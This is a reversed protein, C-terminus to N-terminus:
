AADLTLTSRVAQESTEPNLNVEIMFVREQPIQGQQILQDRIAKAREQALRRLESDEVQITEVLKEKMTEFTVIPKGTNESGPLQEAGQARGDEQQTKQSASSKAEEGLNPSASKPFHLEYLIKVLRITDDKTVVVQELNTSEQPASAQLERFKSERIQKKLRENALALRDLQPDAAGTIELRLGPREKLAEALKVLKEQEHEALDVKGEPFEIYQLSEADDGLLNGLASFPSTAAKTIVNGLAQFVLGWYSFEPDNLDGQVPMDIDIRGHRDKLLALALPIPLSPADPSDTAEGMTLQDILLKNEGKLTHESVKYQLALSLKGKSIPYGAYKGSYPSVATLGWNKFLFTLDTYADKSLPNIQGKIAIPAYKDVKGKLDVQAKALQESSLGKITGTFGQLGVRVNPKLSRDSFKVGANVIKVTDVKVPVQSTPEGEAQDGKKDKKDRKVKEGGEQVESDVTESEQPPSFAQALNILGDARRVVNALPKTLSIEGISVTTPEVQIAAKKVTFSEWTLFQDSQGKEALALNSIGAQGRFVLTPHDSPAGYYQTKGQVGVAGDVLDLQLLPDLYPQFPKLALQSVAVEVDAMLPEVQVTGKVDATGTQNVVLSLGFDIPKTLDSSVDKVQFKISELGLEAPNKLTRDEFAVSYNDITLEGVMVEWPNEEQDPGPPSEPAPPSNNPLSDAGESPMDGPTFLTQYNVVGDPNLWGIFRADQSRISPIEVQKQAVDVTVGEVDFSPISILSESNGKEGLTFEQLHFEVSSLLIRNGEGIMEFQYNTGFNVIGNTIEFQLIDQLYEWLIRLQLGNVSFKGASTVPDLSVTGEWNLTGGELVEATVAYPNESTPHTSFNKLSIEIPVIDAVFPTDDLEDHFEIIGQEISLHYVELAPLASEESSDTSAPEPEPPSSSAQPKALDAINLSGDPRTAIVGYPLVLGIQAFTFARRYISSLQFNVFLEQFGLLPTKDQEQIEFGHINLSLAFPNLQIDEVVVPKGLQESLTSPLQSELILPIVVFGVLAYLLITSVSFIALKKHKRLFAM